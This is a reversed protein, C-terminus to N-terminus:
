EAGGTKHKRQLTRAVLVTIGSVEGSVGGPMKGLQAHRQRMLRRDDLITGQPETVNNGLVLKYRVLKCRATWTVKKSELIHSRCSM